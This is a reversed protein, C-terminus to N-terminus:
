SGSTSMKMGPNPTFFEHINKNLFFLMSVCPLALLIYISVFTKLNPQYRYEIQGMTAMLIGILIYIIGVKKLYIPLQEKKIIQVITESVFFNAQKSNLHVIGIVVFYIGLFLQSLIIRVGKIVKNYM